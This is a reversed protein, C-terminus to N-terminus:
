CCARAAPWMGSAVRAQFKDFRYPFCAQLQDLTVSEPPTDSNIFAQLAASTDAQPEATESEGEEVDDSHGLACRM